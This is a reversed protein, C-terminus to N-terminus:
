FEYIKLISDDITSTLQSPANQPPTPVTTEDDDILELKTGFPRPSSSEEQTSM